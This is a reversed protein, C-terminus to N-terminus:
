SRAFSTSWCPPLPFDSPGPIPAPPPPFGPNPFFFGIVQSMFCTPLPSSFFVMGSLSPDASAFSLLPGVCYFLLPGRAENPSVRIETLEEFLPRIIQSSSPFFFPIMILCAVSFSFFTRRPVASSQSRNSPNDPPHFGFSM